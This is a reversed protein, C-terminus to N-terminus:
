KKYSEGEREGGRETVCVCAEGERGGGGGGGWKRWHLLLRPAGRRWLRSTEGSAHGWVHLWPAIFRVLLRWWGSLALAPSGSNDEDRGTNNGESFFFFFFFFSLFFFGFPTSIEWAPKGSEPASRGGSRPKWSVTMSLSVGVLLSQNNPVSSYPGLLYLQETETDADVGTSAARWRTFRSLRPVRDNWLHGPHKKGRVTESLNNEDSLTHLKILDTCSSLLM